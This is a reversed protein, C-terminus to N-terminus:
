SASECAQRADLKALRTEYSIAYSIAYTDCLQNRMDLRKCTYGAVSSEARLVEALLSFLQRWSIELQQNIRHGSGLYPRM